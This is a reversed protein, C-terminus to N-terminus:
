KKLIGFFFCLLIAFDLFSAVPDVWDRESFFLDSASLFGKVAFLFFAITVFLLRKRGDRRYAIFSIIFLATALLSSSLTIIEELEIGSDSNLYDVDEVDIDALSNPCFISFILIIFLLIKIKNNM